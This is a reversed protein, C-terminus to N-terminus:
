AIVMKKIFCSIFHMYLPARKLKVYSLTSIEDTIELCTHTHESAKTMNSEKDGRPHYGALIRHGHFGGPLINYWHGAWRSKSPGRKYELPGYLSPYAPVGAFCSISQPFLLNKTGKKGMFFHDRCYHQESHPEHVYYHQETFKYCALHTCFESCELVKM